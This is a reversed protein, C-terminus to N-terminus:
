REALVDAIKRSQRDRVVCVLTRELALSTWLIDVAKRGLLSEEEAPCLDPRALIGLGGFPLLDGTIRM